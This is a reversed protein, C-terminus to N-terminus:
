KMASGSINHQSPLHPKKKWLRIFCSTLFFFNWRSFRLLAKKPLFMTLLKYPYNILECMLSHRLWQDIWKMCADNLCTVVRQKNPQQFWSLSTPFIYQIQIELPFNTTKGSVETCNSNYKHVPKLMWGLHNGKQSGTLQFVDKQM